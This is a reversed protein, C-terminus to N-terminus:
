LVIHDREITTCPSSLLKDLIIKRDPCFFCNVIRNATAARRKAVEPDDTALLLTKKVRFSNTPSFRDLKLVLKIRSMM